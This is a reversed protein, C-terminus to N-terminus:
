SSVVSMLSALSATMIILRREKMFRDFRIWVEVAWPTDGSAIQLNPPPGEGFPGLYRQLAEDFETIDSWGEQVM